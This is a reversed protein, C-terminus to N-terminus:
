DREPIGAATQALAADLLEPVLDCPRGLWWDTHTFAWAIARELRSIDGTPAREFVWCYTTELWDASYADDLYTRKRPDMAARLHAFQLSLRLALPWYPDAKLDLGIVYVNARRHRRIVTMSGERELDGIAYQVARLSLGTAESLTRQSPRAVGYRDAYSKIANRVAERATQSSGPSENEAVAPQSDHM